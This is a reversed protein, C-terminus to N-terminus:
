DNRNLENYNELVYSHRERERERERSGKCLSTGNKACRAKYM